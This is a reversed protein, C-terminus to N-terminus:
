KSEAWIEKGGDMVSYKRGKGTPLMILVTTYRGYRSDIKIQGLHAKIVKYVYPLGLGWNM